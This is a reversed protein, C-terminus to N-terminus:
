REGTVGTSSDARAAAINSAGLVERTSSGRGPFEQFGRGERNALVRPATRDCAGAEAVRPITQSRLSRASIM